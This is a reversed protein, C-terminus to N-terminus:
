LKRASADHGVQLFMGGFIRHHSMPFEQGAIREDHRL